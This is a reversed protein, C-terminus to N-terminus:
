QYPNFNLALGPTDVTAKLLLGASGCTAYLTKRDAGGFCLSSPLPAFAGDLQIPVYEVDKGDPSIISFGGNSMPNNGDPLMTAVYVNGAEDVTMSDLIAQGPLDATLLHSGDMSLPNPRIRGPGDLEWYMVQRSYTMAAYLRDEAPSLAIGNPCSLPFIMETIKSGDPAAYYIGTVDVDRPRQKGWDSIWCHGTKDFVLDDPGRLGLPKPHSVPKPQRPGFGSMDMGDSFSRYAMNVRGDSLNVHEIRGGEYDDPQTTGIALTQGNPLPVDLWNFGGNNAIWAHGDPGLALGNPGGKIDAVRTRSGDAGIRTLCQNRIEVLLVSGDPLYKPSEPYGLGSAIIEFASIRSATM